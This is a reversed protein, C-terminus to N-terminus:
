HLEDLALNLRLVNVAPAGLLRGPPAEVCRDVLAAVREEPLHRAAAVRAVQFRAAAPSLHPDLGSGSAYLLEPPVPADAALQHAQRLAAARETVAAALAASTPALNSAGSPVTAYGAASPRPWFYRDRTFPQALLASGVTVGERVVLSGGARAPCAVSAIATVALPYLVGTLLSLALLMRAATLLAAM